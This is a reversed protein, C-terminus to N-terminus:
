NCEGAADPAQKSASRCYAKAAVVQDEAVNDQGSCIAALRWRSCLHAPLNAVAPKVHCSEVQVTPASICWLLSAVHRECSVAIINTVHDRPTAVALSDGRVGPAAKVM